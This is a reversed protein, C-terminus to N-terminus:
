SGAFLSVSVLCVSSYLVLNPLLTILGCHHISLLSCSLAGLPPLPAAILLMAFFGMDDSGLLEAFSGM